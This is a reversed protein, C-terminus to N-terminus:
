QAFLDPAERIQNTMVHLEQIEIIQLKSLQKTSEIHSFKHSPDTKSWDACSLVFKLLTM